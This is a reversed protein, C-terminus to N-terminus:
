QNRHCTLGRPLLAGKCSRVQDLQEQTLNIVDLVTNSLDAGSLNAHFLNAGSLDAPNLDAHQLNTYSLNADRLSSYYLLTDSLNAGSLNAHLFSTSYLFTHNLNASSLDAGYLSIIPVDNDTKPFTILNADHLFVLLRGKREPDLGQLAELTRARALVAVDYYPNHTNIPSSKLLNHNLLLDQVNDLYTQLITAQQQDLAQQQDVNHQWTGFLYGGGALVIPVILLQLWDWLTKGTFGTWGKSRNKHQPIVLKSKKRVVWEVDETTSVNHNATDQRNEDM